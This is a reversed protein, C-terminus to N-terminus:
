VNTSSLRSLVYECREAISLLPVEVVEYKCRRYWWIIHEHVRVADLFSQDRESDNRYIAESPALAFVNHHFRFTSLLENLTDNHFPELQNVMALAEIVSRDYFVFGVQNENQRYKEIDQRLIEQAFELPAPRPSLGKSKRYAIIARATESVTSYGRSQLAELLTTKGAGPGGTIVVRQPSM